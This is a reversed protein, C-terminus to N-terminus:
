RNPDRAGPLGWAPLRESHHCAAQRDSAPGDQLYRLSPKASVCIETRHSCRPAFPCGSKAPASLADVNLDAPPQTGREPPLVARLLERTYPHAPNEFIQERSGSEVIEGAFMVLVRQCLYRVASMDHAIFLYATDLDRQLTALLALVQGRISMDLASVPEDLVVLAPKSILARGIAIRQCQGGSLEHPFRDLYEDDLGIRKVTEQLLKHCEAATLDPQHVTLPELLCERLSLRPNLSALPDQFVAQMQRRARRLDKGTLSLWDTSDFVVRGQADELRLLARALSSKGCGSEGVLGVTEGAAITFSVEDVAVLSNKRRGYVVSLREVRLLETM